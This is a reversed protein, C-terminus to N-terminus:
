QASGSTMADKMGLASHSTDTAALKSLAQEGETISYCRSCDCDKAHGYDLAFVERLRKVTADFQKACYELAELRAKPVLVLNSSTITEVIKDTLVDHSAYAEDYVLAAIKRATETLLQDPPTTECNGRHCRHCKPCVPPCNYEPENM